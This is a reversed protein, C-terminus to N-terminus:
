TNFVKNILKLYNKLFFNNRGISPASSEPPSILIWPIKSYKRFLYPWVGMNEPEEQVWIIKRKNTYQILIKEFLNNIIPYLQEIRIIALNKKNLIKRKKFIDYYIKGSCFVLTDVYNKIVYKDDIFEEFKGNSLESLSSICQINRLLSKPTFIILPKIFCFKIQRRLLHYFNSPTSCNCIFMNYNACLQLYREIRSSSHESGQGEEGHPLLLVIGNKIKWKTEASSLYQDIIIQASNSFDGFQAEWLTLTNTNFMSYGYEFGLVGYESLLSNYVYLKGQGNRINNLLYIKEEFESIIVIHRHAFTGREVDEGSLRINYGEYLLSGYALLEAIGWDVTEKKLLKKKKIKLFKVTKNYFKKNKPVNYIKNGIKLLINKKFTTKVENILVKYNASNLKEKYILFNDLKTKIEFKSKIFGNNLYNKYKKEYFKIKNKYILKNKKLKNKYIFYLNKNNDIIKYFNPQTFRPDDGENHGYKRYGLLDVFVDKNYSMRFDIAFRISYIVSEVDDSNVHIVPSLIVKALDTCYISSRSDSCNTTFGIQNNVIIHITGGTKYGELLSMQIVEYAIGQASFAADGHILIPIVKNLNCNYDNDIKARVIGEVIPSVSELHSSNPVNMIHIERGIKNKIYINDGLHYKVDGLFKKEIYEKGFFESFIKKCNKKLINCLINLRGRHSMGIVFDKISYNISSYEIIYNIAPLISENGEISFRKQGVFKTHIFNEFKTAKNINILIKFKENNYLINNNNIWNNIWNIQEPNYLYMYELGISECYKKKLFFIIERLTCPPLGIEKSSVFIKDIDEKELFFKNLTPYDIKESIPNIKAFLHGEKKYFNILKLVNIEKFTDISKKKKIFKCNCFYTYKEKYFDFGQFFARWSHEISDPDELYKKYLIEIQQHNITNLFSYRDM